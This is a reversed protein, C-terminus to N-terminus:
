TGYMEVLTRRLTAVTEQTRNLVDLSVIVAPRTKTMERGLTPDLSVWRIEYRRM